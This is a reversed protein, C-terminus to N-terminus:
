GVRGGSGGEFGKRSFSVSTVFALWAVLLCAFSVALGIPFLANLGFDVDVLATAAAVGAVWVLPAVSHSRLLRLFASSSPLGTARYVDVDAAVRQRTILLVAGAFVLGLAAAAFALDTSTQQISSIVAANQALLHKPIAEAFFHASLQSLLVLTVFGAFVLSVARLPRHRRAM